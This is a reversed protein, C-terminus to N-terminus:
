ANSLQFQRPVPTVTKRTKQGCRPRNLRVPLAVNGRGDIPFIRVEIPVPRSDDQQLVHIKLLRAGGYCDADNAKM